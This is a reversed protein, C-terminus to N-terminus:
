LKYGPLDLLQKTQSYSIYIIYIYAKMINQSFTTRIHTFTLNFLEVNSTRRIYLYHRLPNTSNHM